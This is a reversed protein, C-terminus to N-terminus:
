KLPLVKKGLPPANRLWKFDLTFCFPHTLVTATQQDTVVYKKQLRERRRMEKKVQAQESPKLSAFTIDNTGSQSQDLSAQGGGLVRCFLVVCSCHRWM